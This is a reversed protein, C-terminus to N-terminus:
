ARNWAGGSRILKLADPAPLAPSFLYGQVETCGELRVFDLQERTEVGEATIRAGLSGALMVIARVIAATKAGLTETVFSRDIKVTDFSFRHLYSLSSYGTGFDDLAIRVGLARLRRISAGVAEADQLLITETIELELRHPALGSRALAHTVTEEMSIQQFQLASVNVAVKLHDPWSAAALCAEKLAWAGLSIILGTEEALPIFESPPIAGRLPHQWRMLAEFGAIAGTSLEVIPQYHLLFGGRKMTGRMDRELSHSADPGSEHPPDHPSDHFRYTNRGAAKAKYLALDSRKFFAEADTERVAGFAIGVSAGVSVRNGDLAVPRRIAEIVREAMRSADGRHRIPALVIAFEDGGLRAVIDTERIVARLRKAIQQLLRDGAPHGLTDNVHKFRDLDCALVAVHTDGREPSRIERNLREWFLTRNPLDTLPDHLALHAIREEDQKRRSIDIHTGVVRLPAGARDRSVVKGRALLWVYHGQKARLRYECAFIPTRGEFHDQLVRRSREADDPHILANWTAIHPRIEGREYDLMAAWHDSIEVEGTAVSWDWLGDSGSNLALGLREESVRLADEVAKRETIDRLSTVYGTPAQTIPDRALSQSVEMCLWRGDKSRYRQCTSAQDIRGRSLDDLVRAFADADDGHVFDLPKTGVLEDPDYGLVTRVSPSVYRRTTDLDSWIIVDTTTEALLRFRQESERLASEVAHRRAAEAESAVRAEHLRLHAEVVLALDQLRRVARESFDPRPRRDMVCFTGINLGAGLALPVGAYFRAYPEGTVLPSEASRADARLDPIVLPDRGTGRITLDCFADRRSVSGAEIGCRAKFWVRDEDVFQVACMPTDFLDAATRCVADLHAEAASDLIRLARLAALRRVEGSVDVM